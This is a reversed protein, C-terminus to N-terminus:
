HISVARSASFLLSCPHFVNASSHPSKPKCSYPQVPDFPSIGNEATRPFLVELYTSVEPLARPAACTNPHREPSPHHRCLCHMVFRLQLHCNVEGNRGLSPCHLAASCTLSDSVLVPDTAPPQAWLIPQPPCHLAKQGETFCPSNSDGDAVSLCGSILKALCSYWSDELLQSLSSSAWQHKNMNEAPASPCTGLVSASLGSDALICM